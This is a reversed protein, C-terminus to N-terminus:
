FLIGKPLQAMLIKTFLIWLFILFGMVVALRVAMSRVTREEVQIALTVGFFFIFSSVYFGIYEVAAVYAVMSALVLFFRWLPRREKTKAESDLPHLLTAAVKIGVLAVMLAMLVNPFISAGLEANDPTLLYFFGTVALMAVISVWERIQANM